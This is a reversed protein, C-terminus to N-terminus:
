ALSCQHSAHGAAGSLLFQRAKFQEAVWDGAIRIGEAKRLDRHVILWIDSNLVAIPQSVRVLGPDKDGLFCPLIGAGVGSRVAHQLMPTTGARFVPKADGLHGLIWRQSEYLDFEEAFCAWPADIFIRDKTMALMQAALAPAAYVACGISGLRRTVFDGTLPLGHRVAFDAERKTLLQTDDSQRIELFLGEPRQGIEGALFLASWPSATLRVQRDRVGSIADGHRHFALAATEMAEARPMLDRGADTLRLGEPLRDFLTVALSAELATLHRGVTPQSIGMELSAARLSGARAIGLFMRVHDWDPTKGALMM